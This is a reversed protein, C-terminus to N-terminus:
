DNKDRSESQAQSDAQVLMDIFNRLKPIHHLVFTRFPAMYAEKSNGVDQVLNGITQLIKAALTLTRLVQGNPHERRLGFLKPSLLAAAFFRM